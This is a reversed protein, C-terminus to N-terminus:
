TRRGTGESAFLSYAPLPNDGEFLHPLLFASFNYYLSTTLVGGSSSTRGLNPVLVAIYPAGATFARYDPGPTFQSDYTISIEFIDIPQNAFTINFIDLKSLFLRRGNELILTDSGTPEFLINEPLIFKIEDDDMNQFRLHLDALSDSDATEIVAKCSSLDVSNFFAGTPDSYSVGEFSRAIQGRYLTDSGRVIKFGCHSFIDAGEGAPFYLRDLKYQLIECRLEEAECVNGTLIIGAFLITLYKLINYFIKVELSKYM